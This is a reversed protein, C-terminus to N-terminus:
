IAENIDRIYATIPVNRNERQEMTGALLQERLLRSDYQKGAHSLLRQGLNLAFFDFTPPCLGLIDKAGSEAGELNGIIEELSKRTKSFVSHPFRNRKSYKELGTKHEMKSSVGDYCQGKVLSLQVKLLM